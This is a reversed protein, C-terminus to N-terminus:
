RSFQLDVARRHALRDFLELVLPEDRDDGRAADEHM